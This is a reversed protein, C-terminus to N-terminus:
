KYREIASPKVSQAYGPSRPSIANAGIGKNVCELPKEQCANILRVLVDAYRDHGPNPRWPGGEVTSEGLIVLRQFPEKRCDKPRPPLHRSPPAPGAEAKIEQVRWSLFGAAVGGAGTLGASTSRLFERRKM